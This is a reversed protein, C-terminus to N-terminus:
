GDKHKKSDTRSFNSPALWSAQTGQQFKMQM